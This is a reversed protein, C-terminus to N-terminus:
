SILFFTWMAYNSDSFAVKTLFYSLKVAIALSFNTRIERSCTSSIAEISFFFFSWNCFTQKFSAGEVHAARWLYSSTKSVSFTRLYSLWNLSMVICINSIPKSGLWLWNAAATAQMINGEYLISRDSGGPFPFLRTIPTRM